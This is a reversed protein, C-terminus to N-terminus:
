VSDHYLDSVRGYGPGLIESIPRMGHIGSSAWILSTQHKDTQHKNLTDKSRGRPLYPGEKTM